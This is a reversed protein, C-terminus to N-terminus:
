LNYIFKLYRNHINKYWMSKTTFKKHLPSYSKCTEVAGVKCIGLRNHMVRVRRVLAVKM